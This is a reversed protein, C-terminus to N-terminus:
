EIFGIVDRLDSSEVVHHAVEKLAQCDSNFAISRGVIKFAEIDTEADGIFIVESLQIGLDECMHEIIEAKKELGAGVPWIFDGTVKNDQIVLENGFIHDIGFDKAARRAMDISGGTIAMTILDKSRIHSFLDKIGDNYSIANVLDHYPAADRGKWLRGVVEEVLRDYDTKLYKKTLVKGEELTGFREHLLMWFNVDRFLTGDVDFCVLKYKM